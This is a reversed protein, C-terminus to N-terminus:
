RFVIPPIRVPVLTFSTVFIAVTLLTLIIRAAGLTQDANVPRPHGFGGMMFLVSVIEEEDLLHYAGKAAALM